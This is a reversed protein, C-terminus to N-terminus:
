CVWAWTLDKMMSFARRRTEEKLIKIEEFLLHVYLVINKLSITQAVYSKLASFTLM